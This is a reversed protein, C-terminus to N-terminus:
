RKWILRWQLWVYFASVVVLMFYSLLESLWALDGFFCLPFREYICWHKPGDVTGLPRFFRTVVLISM